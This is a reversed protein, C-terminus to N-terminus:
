NKMKLPYKVLGKGNGINEYWSGCVVVEPQNDMFSVQRAFREPLSIDDADMRAIYKGRANNLGINLSIAYGTNKSKRILKIRSDTLSQLYEYTGDTSFDDIILFEFDSFTQLLISEVSSEIFDACNYVPMLVSVTPNM